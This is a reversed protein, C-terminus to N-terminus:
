DAAVHFAAYGKKKLEEAAQPSEAWKVFKDVHALPNSEVVIGLERVPQYERNEVTEVSPEVGDLALTQAACRSSLLGGLSVCGIAGPTGELGVLVDEEYFLPVTNTTVQTDKLIFTRFAKKASSSEDRDLVVIPVDDGGLESWNTIRGAYIDCVQSASVSRVTGSPHVALVLGDRTLPHYSIAHASQGGTLRGSMGAVDLAGETVGQIGGASHTDPFWKFNVENRYPYIESLTRLLALHPGSGAARIVPVSTIAAFHGDPASSCSALLLCTLMLLAARPVGSHSRVSCGERSSGVLGFLAYSYVRVLAGPRM